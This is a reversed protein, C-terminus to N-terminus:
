ATEEHDEETQNEIRRYLRKQSVVMQGFEESAILGPPLRSADYL